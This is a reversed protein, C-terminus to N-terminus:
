HTKRLLKMTNSPKLFDPRRSKINTFMVPYCIELIDAKPNKLINAYCICCNLNWTMISLAWKFGNCHMTSWDLGIYHAWIYDLASIDMEICHVEIWGLAIYEFTITHLSIWHLTIYKSGVWHLASLHLRICQYGDCHLTSWDLGTYYVWIYDLVSIDM